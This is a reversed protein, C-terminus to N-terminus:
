EIVLQLVLDLVSLSIFAIVPVRLIGVWEEDNDRERFARFAKILLYIVFIFQLLAVIIDFLPSAGPLFTGLTSNLFSKFGGFFLAYAPSNIQQMLYAGPVALAALITIKFKRPLALFKDIKDAYMMMLAMAGILLMVGPDGNSISLVGVATATMLLLTPEPAWGPRQSLALRNKTSNKRM